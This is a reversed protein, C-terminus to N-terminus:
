AAAIEDCLESKIDFRLFTCSRAHPMEFVPGVISCRLFEHAGHRGVITRPAGECTRVHRDAHNKMTVGRKKILMRLAIFAIATSKAVETDNSGNQSPAGM